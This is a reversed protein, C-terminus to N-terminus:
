NNVCCHCHNEETVIYKMHKHEIGADMVITDDDVVFGSKEYFYIAPIQALLGIEKGGLSRVKEIMSLLLFTAFGKHRYDKLTAIRGIQFTDDNIRRLRGTAVPINKENFILYHGSVADYSDFEEEEPVNQEEVFVKRRIEYCLHIDDDYSNLFKGHIM